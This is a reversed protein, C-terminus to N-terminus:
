GACPDVKDQGQLPELDDGSVVRFRYFAENVARSRPTVQLHNFADCACLEAAVPLL